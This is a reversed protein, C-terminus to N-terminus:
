RPGGGSSVALARGSSGAGGAAAPRLFRDLREPDYLEHMPHARGALAAVVARAVSPAQAFGGTNHGGTVVGVGGAVTPVAEFIGLNAATWPRVCIRRSRRLSGDRSARAHAEPFFARCTDEVAAFMTALAAPDADTGDAGLYGYGSGVVLVPRGREDTGLTVNADETLHGRRAIKLSHRLEPGPHPLTLWVGLVGHIRGESRTGALLDGGHAGPSLVYHDATVLAGAARLGGMRGGDAWEIREVPTSWGFEAGAQELRSVMRDLLRHVNVTFGPVELGGALDATAGALGPHHRRVDAPELVRRVADLGTHRLVSREFQERDTYLRLIGPRHGTDAFLEPHEEILARWLGRSERNFSLIDADYTRALRAPVSEFDRVWREEAASFPAARVNWGRADLSRRFVGNVAPRDASTKAHYDDAETLTFMRADGGARSCGYASWHLDKRPDPRADLIRLRHGARLLYWATVLNVIGAGVLVVDRGPPHPPVPPGSTRRQEGPPRSAATSARDAPGTELMPM